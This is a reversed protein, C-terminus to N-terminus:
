WNAAKQRCLAQDELWEQVSGDPQHQRVKLPKPATSIAVVDAIAVSRAWEQMRALITERDSPLYLDQKNFVLVTRKRVALQKLLQFESETLDGTVLFLILDAITAQKLVVSEATLGANSVEFSPAEYLTVPNSDTTWAAQLQQILTTKGSGKAGMVMLRLAERNMETLIQTAQAQLFSLQPTITQLAPEPNILEAQLRTIVQEAEVLAQKVQTPDVRPLPMPEIELPKSQRQVWWVGTSIGLAALSYVGWEGLSQDLFELLWLITALTIGGMVLPRYLKEAMALDRFM